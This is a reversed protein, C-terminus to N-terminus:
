CQLIFTRVKEVGTKLAHLIAHKFQKLADQVQNRMNNFPEKLGASIGIKTANIMNVIRRTQNDIDTQLDVKTLGGQCKSQVEAGVKAYNISCNCDCDEKIDDYLSDCSSDDKHHHHHHNHHYGGGYAQLPLLCLLLLQGIM